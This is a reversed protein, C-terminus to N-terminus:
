SLQSLNLLNTHLKFMFQTYIIEAVDKQNIIQKYYTLDYDLYESSSSILNFDVESLAKMQSLMQEMTEALLKGNEKNNELDSTQM